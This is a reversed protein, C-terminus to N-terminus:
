ARGPLRGPARDLRSRFLIGAGGEFTVSLFSFQRTIEVFGFLRHLEISAINRANAFFWAEDAREAIWRLRGETLAAGIGARRWGPHVFVGTLYYGEPATDAPPDPPQHFLCARGYAVVEDAIAAVLLLRHPHERDESLVDRWSDVGRESAAQSALAASPEIDLSTATRISFAAAMM